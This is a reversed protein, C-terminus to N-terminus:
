VLNGGFSDQWDRSLQVVVRHSEEGLANDTHIGIGQGDILKHAGVCLNPRFQTGFLDEALEKVKGLATSTLLPVAIIEPISPVDKFNLEFQDYFHHVSRRWIAQSSLWRSLMDAFETQYFESLVFHEFPECSATLLRLGM